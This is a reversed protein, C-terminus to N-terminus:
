AHWMQIQWLLGQPSLLHDRLFGDEIQDHQFLLQLHNDQPFGGEGEQFPSRQTM